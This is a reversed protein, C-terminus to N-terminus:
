EMVLPESIWGMWSSRAPVVSGAQTPVPLRISRAWDFVADKKMEVGYGGLLKELGHTSLTAGFKADSAKMNVASAYVVLAKNERMMFEDVRRLEKDTYDKGPQTLILADIGEDIVTEGGKLDVDEFKYYPFAQEVVQRM